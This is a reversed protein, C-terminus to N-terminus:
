NPGDSRRLHVSTQDFLRQESPELTPQYLVWGTELAFRVYYVEGAEVRIQMDSRRESRMSYTHLGPDATVLFYTGIELVGIKSDGERVAYSIASGPYDRKRYFVILAKGPPPEGIQITQTPTLARGGFALAAGALGLLVRRSLSKSM